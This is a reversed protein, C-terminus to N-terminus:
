KAAPLPFKKFVTQAAKTLKENDKIILQRGDMNAGLQSYFVHSNYSNDVLDDMLIADTTVETEITPDGYYGHVYPTAGFYNFRGYRGPMPAIGTGVYGHVGTGPQVSTELSDETSLGLYMTLDGGSEVQTYGHRELEKGLVYYVRMLDEEMIGEPIKEKEIKQIQFSKYSALDSDNLVKSNKLVYPSCSAMAIAAAVIFIIKKM